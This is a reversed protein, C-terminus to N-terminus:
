GKTLGEEITGVIRKAIDEGFYITSVNGDSGILEIGFREVSGDNFVRIEGSEDRSKFDTGNEFYVIECDTQV